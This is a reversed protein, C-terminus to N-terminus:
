GTFTPSVPTQEAARVETAITTTTTSGGTAFTLLASAGV